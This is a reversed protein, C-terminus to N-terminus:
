FVVLFLGTQVQQILVILNLFYLKFLLGQGIFYEDSAYKNKSKQPKNM